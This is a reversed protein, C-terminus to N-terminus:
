LADNHLVGKADGQLRPVCSQNGCPTTAAFWKRPTPLGFVAIQDGKTRTEERRSRRRGSRWQSRPWSISRGSYLSLSELVCQIMMMMMVVVEPSSKLRNLNSTETHSCHQLPEINSTPRQKATLIIRLRALPLTLYTLYSLYSARIFPLMAHHITYRLLLM